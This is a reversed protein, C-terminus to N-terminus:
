AIGPLLCSTAAVGARAERLLANRARASLVGSSFICEGRSSLKMPVAAVEVPALFDSVDPSRWNMAASVSMTFSM